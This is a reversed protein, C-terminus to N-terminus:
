GKVIALNLVSGYHTKDKNVDAGNFILTKASFYKEEKISLGL